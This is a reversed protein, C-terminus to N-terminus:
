GNNDNARCRSRAELLLQFAARAFPWDPVLLYDALVSRATGPHFTPQLHHPRDKVAVDAVRNMWAHISRTSINNNTGHLGVAAIKSLGASISDEVDAIICARRRAIYEFPTLVHEAAAGTRCGQLINRLCEEQYERSAWPPCRPVFGASYVDEAQGPDYVKLLHATRNRRVAETWEHAPIQWLFRQAFQKRTRIAGISQDFHSVAVSRCWQLSASERGLRAIMAQALASSSKRGSM